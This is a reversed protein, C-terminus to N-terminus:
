LFIRSLLLGGVMLLPLTNMIGPARTVAGANGHVVSDTHEGQLCSEATNAQATSTLNCVATCPKPNSYIWVSTPCCSRLLERFDTDNNGQQYLPVAAYHDLFSDLIGPVSDRQSFCEAPQTLNVTM